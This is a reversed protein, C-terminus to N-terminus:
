VLLVYAPMQPLTIAMYTINKWAWILSKVKLNSKVDKKVVNDLQNCSRGNWSSARPQSVTLFSEPHFAFSLAIFSEGWSTPAFDSISPHIKETSKHPISCPRPPYKQSRNSPVIQSSPSVTEAVLQSLLMAAVRNTTWIHGQTEWLVPWFFFFVHAVIQMQLRVM